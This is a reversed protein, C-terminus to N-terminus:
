RRLTIQRVPIPAHQVARGNSNLHVIGIVKMKRTDVVTTHLNDQLVVSVDNCWQMVIGKCMRPRAEDRPHSTWEVEFFQSEPLPM